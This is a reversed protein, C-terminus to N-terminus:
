IYLSIHWIIYYVMKFFLTLIKTSLSNTVFPNIFYINRHYHIDIKKGNSITHMNFTTSDIYSFM